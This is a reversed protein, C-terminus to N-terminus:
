ATRAHVVRDKIRAAALREAEARRAAQASQEIRPPASGGSAMSTGRLLGSRDRALQEQRPSLNSPPDSIVRSMKPAVPSPTPPASAPSKPAPTAPAPTTPAPRSPAAVDLDAEPTMAAIVLATALDPDHPSDSAARAARELDVLRPEEWGMQKRVCSAVYAGPTHDSLAVKGLRIVEPLFHKLQAYALAAERSRAGGVYGEIQQELEELPVLIRTEIAKLMQKSTMTRPREARWHAASVSVLAGVLAPYHLADVRAQIEAGTPAPGTARRRGRESRGARGSGTLADNLDSREAPRSPPAGQRRLEQQHAGRPRRWHRAPLRDPQPTVEPDLLRVLRRQRPASLLELLGKAVLGSILEVQDTRNGVGLRRLAEGDAWAVREPSAQCVLAVLVRQEDDTIRYDGRGDALQCTVAAVYVALEAPDVREGRAIADIHHATTDSTGSM